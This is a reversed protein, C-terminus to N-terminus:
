FFPKCQNMDIDPNSHRPLILDDVDFPASHLHTHIQALRLATALDLGANTGYVSAAKQVRKSSLQM